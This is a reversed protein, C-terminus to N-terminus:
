KNVGAKKKTKNQKTQKNTQKNQKTKKKKTLNWVIQSSYVWSLAAFSVFRALFTKRTLLVYIRDFQNQLVSVLINSEWLSIHFQQTSPLYGLHFLNFYTHLSPKLYISFSYFTQCKSIVCFTIWHYRAVSVHICSLASIFPSASINLVLTIPNKQWVDEGERVFGSELLFQQM